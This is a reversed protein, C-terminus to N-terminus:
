FEVKVQKSQKVHGCHNCTKTWIDLPKKGSYAREGPGAPYEHTCAYEIETIRKRIVQMKETASMITKQVKPLEIRLANAEDKVSEYTKTKSKAKAKPMKAGNALFESVLSTFAAESMVQCQEIFKPQDAHALRNFQHKIWNPLGNSEILTAIRPHLQSVTEAAKEAKEALQQLNGLATGPKPAEDIQPIRLSTGFRRNQNYRTREDMM